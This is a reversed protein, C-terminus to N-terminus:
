WSAPIDAATGKKADPFVQAVNDKTIERQDQPLLEPRLKPEYGYINKNVSQRTVGGQDVYNRTADLYKSFWCEGGIIRENFLKIVDENTEVKDFIDRAADKKDEPANHVYINRLVNFSFNVAKESTFWVRATDEEDADGLVTVEIYEKGSDTEGLEIAGIHVKHVGFDFRNSSFEKVEKDVKTFKHAM